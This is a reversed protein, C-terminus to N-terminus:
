DGNEQEEGIVQIVKGRANREIRFTIVDGDSCEATVLSLRDRADYQPEFTYTEPPEDEPEESPENEPEEPAPLGLFQDLRQRLNEAATEAREIASIDMSPMEPIKIGRATEAASNIQEVLTSAETLQDLSELAGEIRDLVPVIKEVQPIIAKVRAASEGAADVTPSKSTIEAILDAIRQLQKAMKDLDSVRQVTAGSAAMADLEAQSIVKPM